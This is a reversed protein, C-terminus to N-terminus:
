PTVGVIPANGQSYVRKGWLFNPGPTLTAQLKLWKAHGDAFLYNSGELHRDHDTYTIRLHSNAPATTDKLQDLATAIDAPYMQGSMGDESDYVTTSSGEGLGNTPRHSKNPSAGGGVSTGALRALDNAIEAVMIVQTTEDINAENVVSLGASAMTSSSKLRPMIVENAIYSTRAVQLDLGPFTPTHGGGPHSPCVFLQESKVYPQVLGSWQVYGGASSANNKYYYAPPYHGDQDQTYQMVGLGIQKLNSLCSTRRANERARAFVPFLIAALIAIIAIVVLLEILTFGRHVIRHSQVRQRKTTNQRTFMIIEESSSVGQIRVM